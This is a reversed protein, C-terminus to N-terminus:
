TSPADNYRRKRHAKEKRTFGWGADDLDDMIRRAIMEEDDTAFSQLAALIIDEPYEPETM